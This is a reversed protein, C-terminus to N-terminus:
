ECMMPLMLAKHASAIAIGAILAQHEKPKGIDQKSGCNKLAM